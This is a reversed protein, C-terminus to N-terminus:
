HSHAIAQEEMCHYFVCHTYVKDLCQSVCAQSQFPSIVPLLPKLPCKGWDGSLGRGQSVRTLNCYEDFPSITHANHRQTHSCQLLRHVGGAHLICLSVSTNLEVVGLRIGLTRETFNSSEMKKALSTALLDLCDATEQRWLTPSGGSMCKECRAM